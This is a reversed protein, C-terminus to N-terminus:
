SISLRGTQGVFSVLQPYRIGSNPQKTEAMLAPYRGYDQFIPQGTHDKEIAFWTTDEDESHLRSLVEIDEPPELIAKLRDYIQKDTKEHPLGDVGVKGPRHPGQVEWCSDCYTSGCSLCLSRTSEPSSKCEYGECELLPPAPRARIVSSVTCYHVQHLARPILTGFFQFTFPHLCPKNLRAKFDHARLRM